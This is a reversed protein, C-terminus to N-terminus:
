AYHDWKIKMEQMSIDQHWFISYLRAFKAKLPMDEIWLDKWFNILSGDGPKWTFDEVKFLNLNRYRKVELM